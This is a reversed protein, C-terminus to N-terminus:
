REKLKQVLEKFIHGRQEYNDFMGWSACAPSLLVNDGPEALAYAREMAEEFTEVFEYDHFDLKECAEAIKEKTAGMLLLKKVKGDFAEIWEDYSSGKDYGGGLLVTPSKMAKIAQIAADPNTGKSDNYYRVGKITDVYEIRHEVAKFKKVTDLIIALPTGMAMCIGIAAMVNEYNHMGILNMEDVHMLKKSVGGEAAFICEDQYYLGDTLPEESSFFLVRCKQARKLEEGFERLVPDRYNLVCTDEMTQRKTINKKMQIYCEMTKHRNLHDPTINLIASVHPHFTDTSELMFSSIEAAILSNESTKSAEQAYPIGINGVVYTDPNWSKFIEGVLTTTTTKVNTGTIAALTGRSFRYALEVEGIIERGGDLVSQEFINEQPIGPSVVCIDIDSLDEEKLLRGLGATLTLLSRNPRLDERDKFVKEEMERLLERRQEENEPKKMDLLRVPYGQELLLRVASVGSIGSGAVM